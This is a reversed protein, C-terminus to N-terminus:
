DREDATCAAELDLLRQKFLVGEPASFGGLAGDSRVVRHCPVIIPWPNRAMVSGVARSGDPQGARRALEAYSVQQGFEVQRCESTVKARFSTWRGGTVRSYDLPVDRFDVPRGYAFASLRDSLLCHERPEGLLGQRELDERLLDGVRYGVRVAVLGLNSEVIGMWGLQTPLIVSTLAVKSPAVASLLVASM